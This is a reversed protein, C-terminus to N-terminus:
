RACGYEGFGSPIGGHSPGFPRLPELQSLISLRQDPSPDTAAETATVDLGLVRIIENLRTRVTSYPIQLAREMEKVNGRMGVFLKVFDLHDPSLRCFDCVAYHGEITSDCTQCRLRTIELPQGCGPCKELVKRM